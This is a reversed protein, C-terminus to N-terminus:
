SILILFFAQYWYNGVGLLHTATKKKKGRLEPVIRSEKGMQIVHPQYGTNTVRISKMIIIMMGIM